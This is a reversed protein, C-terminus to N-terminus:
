SHAFSSSPVFKENPKAMKLPPMLVLSDFYSAKTIVSNIFTIIQMNGGNDCQLTKINTHFQTQILNYFNVFTNFVQSKNALPYTWLYNTKDDLFLVYYRHGSSTLIPSTWVDSHIIDFPLNSASNSNHFPLRIHKGLICSHCIKNRVSSSSFDLCKNSSSLISHGPHGRRQNWLDESITAFASPSTVKSSPNFSLPNLDGTNDCRLLPIRTQYDKVTFGYPDFELFSNNDITFRRVSLLNKILNPVHLINKLQFPPFPHSLTQHGLGHIPVKSGDGVIINWRIGKNVYSSFNDSTNAMHSTAGIDMYWTSDPPNLQMTHFARELDTPTYSAESAAYAQQPRPGLLGQSPDPRPIPATPPRLPMIPSFTAVKTPLINDVDLPPHIIVLDAVVVVELKAEVM